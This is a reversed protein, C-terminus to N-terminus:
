FAKLELKVGISIVISCSEKNPNYSALLLCKNVSNLDFSVKFLYSLKLLALTINPLLKQKRNEFKKKQSYLSFFFEQIKSILFM